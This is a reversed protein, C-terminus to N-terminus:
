FAWFFLQVSRLYGQMCALSNGSGTALNGTDNPVYTCPENTTITGTKIDIPNAPQRSIAPIGGTPSRDPAVTVPDKKANDDPILNVLYWGVPDDPIVEPQEGIDMKFSSEGLGEHRGGHKSEKTIPIAPQGVTGAEPVQTERGGIGHVESTRLEGVVEVPESTSQPRDAFDEEGFSSPYIGEDVSCLDNVM